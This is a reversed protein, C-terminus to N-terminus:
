ANEVVVRAGEVRVVKVPAGADIFEGRSVVDVTQQGFTAKGSPRLTTHAVGNEGLALSLAAPPTTVAPGSPVAANLVFRNYVSTKPLQKALFWAVFIAAFMALSFNLLPRVLMEQSPWFPQGPWRDVMAYILSGLMLLVGVVGPAITGPHVILEGLVLAVGIAFCVATEWGALGAVYHGAFFLTFCIVSVIGPLGFGPLKFEIYGGIIGGLLLLPALATIWLALREFGTPEIREITGALAAKKIVDDLSDAIGVALLPKGEYVRTAEEASLTLLSDPGDLVKDGIKLQKEKQIFADAIDPNHGNKQAAARAMASLTSVTKDTMTKPLDEGGSMVPAAAGIVSAPAMFIKQTAMTILAGASIARRNVFTYTPVSTRLLADMNSIAAKVEGGFTEMDIIFASAHEREAQKLARRLFLFQAESVESKLPVVVIPGPEAAGALFAFIVTLLAAIAPTKM